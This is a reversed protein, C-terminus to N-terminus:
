ACEQSNAVSGNVSKPTCKLRFDPHNIWSDEDRAWEEETKLQGLDYNEILHALLARILVDAVYKGMCQRPGFGFRWFNYRTETAKHEFFRDPRYKESDEGWFPNRINLAYSDVIFDTEAPFVYGGVTRPTPASQPVSFAALPRLRSSESVCAALLTNPSLLYGDLTIGLENAHAKKEQLESYLRKQMEPHASLFVLNWSIGGLTVDLNAYLAEDVTQYLQESTIDGTAVSDYLDVILAGIGMRRAREYAYKNFEHWKARFNHLERNAQTPLHKSWWFRSIGGRIVHKFLAERIPVLVLLRAEMDEDLRGYIVEAIIWFALLKLDQAPHITDEKLKGDSVLEAFHRTTRAQIMDIYNPSNSRVFPKEAVARVNEWQKGSILGVCQGLIRSMLYGSNNDVAKFHKNSDRFVTKIDEARTLVIETRMGSWIRYIRGYKREWAESNQKGKIFKAEDGQGNPWHYECGPLPVHGNVDSIAFRHHLYKNLIRSLWYGAFREHVPTISYLWIILHIVPGIVLQAIMFKYTFM